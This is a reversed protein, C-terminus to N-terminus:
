WQGAQNGFKRSIQRELDDTLHGGHDSLFQGVESDIRSQRKATLGDVLRTFLSAIGARPVNADATGVTSDFEATDSAFMRAMPTAGEYQELDIGFEPLPRCEDHEVLSIFRRAAAFLAHWLLEPICCFRSCPLICNFFM